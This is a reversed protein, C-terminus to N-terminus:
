KAPGKKLADLATGLAPAYRRVLAQTPRDVSIWAELVDASLTLAAQADVMLETLAPSAAIARQAARMEAASLTSPNRHM